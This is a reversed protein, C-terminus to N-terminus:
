LHMKFCCQAAHLISCIGYLDEKSLKVSLFTHLVIPIIIYKVNQFWLLFILTFVLREIQLIAHDHVMNM